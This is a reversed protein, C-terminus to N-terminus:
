PQSHKHPKSKPMASLCNPCQLLNKSSWLQSSAPCDPPAQCMSQLGVSHGNIVASLPTWYQCLLTLNRRPRLLSRFLLSSLDRITQDRLLIIEKSLDLLQISQFHYIEDASLVEVKLSSKCTNKLTNLPMSLAPEEKRYRKRWNQLKGSNIRPNHPILLLHSRNPPSQLMKRRESGSVNKKFGWEDVKRSFQHGSLGM